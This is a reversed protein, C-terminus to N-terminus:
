VFLVILPLGMPLKGVIYFGCYLINFCYINFNFNGVFYGIYLLTFISDKRLKSVVELIAHGEEWLFEPWNTSGLKFGKWFAWASSTFKVACYELLLLLFPQEGPCLWSSNRSRCTRCCAWCHVVYANKWLREKIMQLHFPHCVFRICVYM